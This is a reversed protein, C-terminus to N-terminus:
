NESLCFDFPIEVLDAAMDDFLLLFGLLLDFLDLRLNLRGGLTKSLEFLLNIVKVGIFENQIATLLWHEELTYV